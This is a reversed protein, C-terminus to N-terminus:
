HRSAATPVNGAAPYGPDLAAYGGARALAPRARVAM